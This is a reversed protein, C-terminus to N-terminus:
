EGEDYLCRGRFIPRIKQRGARQSSSYLPLCEYNWAREALEDLRTRQELDRAKIYFMHANHVAYEPVVPLEIKGAEELEKLGQYYREWLELRKDNIIGCAELQGYLYAANLEGPLYSSGYDM